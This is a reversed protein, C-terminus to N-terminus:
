APETTGEVQKSVRSKKPKKLKLRDRIKRLGEQLKKERHGKINLSELLEDFQDEREYYAWYYRTYTPVEPEEKQTQTTGNEM